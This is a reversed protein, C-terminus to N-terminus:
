CTRAHTSIALECLQSQTHTYTACLYARCCAGHMTGTGEKGRARAKREASDVADKFSSVSAEYHDLSVALAENWLSADVLASM